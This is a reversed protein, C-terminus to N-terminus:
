SSMSAASAKTSHPEFMASICGIRHDRTVSRRSDAGFVFTATSDYVWGCDGCVGLTLLAGHVSACGSLEWDLQARPPPALPLAVLTVLLLPFRAACSLGNM